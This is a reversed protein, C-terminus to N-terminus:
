VSCKAQKLAGGTAQTLMGWDWVEEQVQAILDEAEMADDRGWHVLDTDDVYM